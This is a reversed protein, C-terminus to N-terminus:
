HTIRWSPFHLWITARAPCTFWGCTAFRCHCSFLDFKYFLKSLWPIRVSPFAWYTWVCWRILWFTPLSCCIIWPLNWITETLIVRGLTWWVIIVALLNCNNIINGYRNFYNLLCLTNIPRSIDFTRRGVPLWLGVIQRWRPAGFGLVPHFPLCRVIIIAARLPIVAVHWSLNSASVIFHTNDIDYFFHFINFISLPLSYSFTTIQLIPLM